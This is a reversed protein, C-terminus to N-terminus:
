VSERGAADSAVFVAKGVRAWAKALNKDQWNTAIHEAKDACVLSIAALVRELTAQDILAELRNQLEEREM